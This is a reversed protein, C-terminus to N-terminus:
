KLKPRYGEIFQWEGHKYQPFDKFCEPVAERIVRRRRYGLRTRVRVSDMDRDFYPNPGYLGAYEPRTFYPRVPLIFQDISYGSPVVLANGRPLSIIESPQMLRRAQKRVHQTEADLARMVMGTKFPDASEHLMAHIAERKARAARIRWTFPKIM